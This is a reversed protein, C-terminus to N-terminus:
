RLNSITTTSVEDISFPLYTVLQEVLMSATISHKTMHESIEDFVTPLIPQEQKTLHEVIARTADLSSAM